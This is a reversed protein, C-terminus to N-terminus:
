LLLFLGSAYLKQGPCGSTQTGSTGRIGRGFVKHKPQKETGSGALFMAAPFDVEGEPVSRSKKESVAVAKRLKESMLQQFALAAM